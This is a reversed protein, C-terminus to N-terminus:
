RITGLGRGSYSYGSELRCPDAWRRAQTISCRARRPQKRDFFTHGILEGPAIVAVARCPSRGEDERVSDVAWAAIKFQQQTRRSDRQGEQKGEGDGVDQDGRIRRVINVAHQSRIMRFKRLARECTREPFERSRYRDLKAREGERVASSIQRLEIQEIDNGNAAALKKNGNM